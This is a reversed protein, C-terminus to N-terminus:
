PKLEATASRERAGDVKVGEVWLELPPETARLPLSFEFPYRPDAVEKWEGGQRYHLRAEKLEKETAELWVYGSTLSRGLSIIMATVKGFPSTVTSYSRASLTAAEEAFVKEQFAPAIKLGDIALASIGRGQIPVSVEGRDLTLAAAAKNEQWVRAPYARGVEVPVLDPNLSVKATVPQDSQNILALYFKGPGYGAVCNVQINDTRLLKAPMWLRVGEDGYFTGPRDGYVKSQLYAYGQAYRPPFSIKGESKCFAESVLYDMLLAIHPWVHNYYINNYTLQEWPRLPYDPRAYITTYEGNIDYGPFNAYRGVVASRAIDRFFTDGTYFALRLMYAAYHTLLVAPNLDFTSSAEPTLGIQSVRWAPVLQEPARMPQPDENNRTWYMGVRGGRNILVGQRPIRPQLWVYATYLQAGKAAGDLYRKDKTEEFLELLDIWKPAFDTWFQGGQEVHVDSFDTQPLDIREALYRDAGARAKALHGEDGTMRYLALSNQWSAGESVMDLNLARPKDYLDEAYHRFVASRGRSMSFLAALESVEAAPGKMFHSASQGKIDERMSFLYKQRSLLFEIMPLARRRYIEENDTIMAVSLPHLASVLKVTGAVDTTYDFAKLDAVWGSYADDMAFAIMNELTQNLSGAANERYDGFEYVNRALHRYAEYWGGPRVLLRLKFTFTAGPAMQSAPRGLIPAFILPQADGRENRALVGFRSNAETPLRFPSESADAAVGVTAGKATVLVAPIPCMHETSLFSLRPFRREQWVLPQWVAEIESSPLGPAGTYGVTYWGAASPTFRFTIQPEGRGPALSMEAELRFREQGPFLWRVRGEKLEARAANVTTREAAEFFDMTRKGNRVSKWTPVPMNENKDLEFTHKLEPNDARHLVTFAPKFTQPGAGKATVEVSGDSLVRAQYLENELKDGSVQSVGAPALSLLLLFAIPLISKM